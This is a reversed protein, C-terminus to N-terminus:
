RGGRSDRRRIQWILTAAALTVTCVGTVLWATVYSSLVVIFSFIIPWVFGSYLQLSNVWGVALAEYEGGAKVERAASFGVTTGIGSCFGVILTSLTAGFMNPVAALMLGVGMGVGSLFLLKGAAKHRDYNRGALPSAALALLLSLGAILGALAPNVQMTDEMYYVMVATVLSAGGTIMFLEAGLVVLSRNMLVNKLASRKVSFGRRLDDKPLLFIMVIGTGLGLAGSSVLSMRWGLIHAFIAWGFLGFAGGLYFVANYVGVGLGETRRGFYKAILAVGPAFVFAMGLGAVFRLAIIQYFGSILGSFLCALSSIITGYIVTRRPGIRAALIGGPVQGLGLGLYFSGTVLGLGAVNEGFDLAILSFISGINYWNVAYIVRAFILSVIANRNGSRAL